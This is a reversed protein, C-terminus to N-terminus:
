PKIVKVLSYNIIKPVEPFWHPTGAPVTVIDGKSLHHTTGGEISTGLWQGPKTQKGGILKGGTVMTAEGDIIQFIDTEKEHVEVQGPGRRQNASVIFGAGKAIPGGKAAFLGAIKDHEVYTAQDESEAAILFVAAALAILYKM